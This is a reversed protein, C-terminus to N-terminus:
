KGVGAQEHIDYGGKQRCRCKGDQTQRDANSFASDLGVRPGLQSLEVRNSETSNVRNMGISKTANKLWKRGMKM